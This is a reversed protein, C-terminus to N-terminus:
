KMGSKVIIKLAEEKSINLTNQFKEALEMVKPKKLIGIIERVKQSLTKPKRDFLCLDDDAEDKKSEIQPLFTSPDGLGDRIWEFPANFLKAIAILVSDSVGGIGQEIKAFHSLSIHLLKACERQNRRAHSRLLRVRQGIEKINGANPHSM